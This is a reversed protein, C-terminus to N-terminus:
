HVHGHDDAAGASPTTPPTAEEGLRERAEAVLDGARLRTEEAATELTRGLRIGQAVAGVLLGRGSGGRLAARGGAVIAQGVVGAIAYDLLRRGAFVGVAPASM